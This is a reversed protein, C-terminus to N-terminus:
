HLVEEFLALARPDGSQGLWFFAAKRVEPQHHTRAIRMLQPVGEKPPLQSLGFVAQRKVELDPDADAAHALTDVARQGARQGLWFLARGRVASDQAGRALHFLEDQAESLPSQSIAFVVHERFQRDPDALMGRVVDFGRRGRLHGLWFAAHERLRLPNGPAVLRELWTDAGSDAHHALAALAGNALREDSGGRVHDVLLALSEAPAVTDLWAITQGQTDLSCSQSFLRLRAVRGQQLRLYIRLPEGSPASTGHKDRDGDTM